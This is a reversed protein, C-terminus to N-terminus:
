KGRNPRYRPVEQWAFPMNDFSWEPAATRASVVPQSGTQCSAISLLGPLILLM